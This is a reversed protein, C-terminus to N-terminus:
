IEDKCTIFGEEMEECCANCRSPYGQADGIYVGCGECLVGDLILEIFDSM